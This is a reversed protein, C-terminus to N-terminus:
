VWIYWKSCLIGVPSLLSLILLADRLMRMAKTIQNEITKVSIDLQEAIEKHSLNEFRSLSFVIRCREPLRAIAEHLAKELDDREERISQELNIDESQEEMDAEFVLRKNSKIFNLARNIAAKRLYAHLSSHIELSSRKKWFEVFVEQALDECTNEDPIIRYIDSLLLSYYKDFISRLAQEDGQRLRELWSIEKPDTM